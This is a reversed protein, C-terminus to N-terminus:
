ITGTESSRSGQAQGRDRRREFRLWEEGRPAKAPAATAGEGAGGGIVVVVPGGGPFGNGGGGPFGRGRRSGDREDVVVWSRFSLSSILTLTLTRDFDFTYSFEISRDILRSLSLPSQLPFPHCFLLTHFSLSPNFHLFLGHMEHYQM